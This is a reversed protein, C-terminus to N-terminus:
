DSIFRERKRPTRRMLAIQVRTLKRGKGNGAPM